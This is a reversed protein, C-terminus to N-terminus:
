KDAISRLALGVAVAAQPGMYNLYNPDFKKKTQLSKFPNLEEVPLGTERKLYDKFGPLRCAGGTLFIKKLPEDSYTNGVFDIVRKIESVWDLVLKIFLERLKSIDEVPKWGLKIAEAEEFPENFSTMIAGTLLSGGLASDRSFLSIGNHVINIELKEAGLNIIANLGKRDEADTSIEFVNQLALLDVDMVMPALGVDNLLSIREEIIEKKAAVLLIDENAIPSNRNDNGEAEKPLIEYDIEVENINFPIYQEAAAQVKEQFDPAGRKTPVNVKKVIVSYGSVSTAINKNRIKLNSLLNGIATVVVSKEKIMGEVIASNPLEIIGFNKLVLEKGTHDIEVAKITNSGIDLGILQNHKEIKM